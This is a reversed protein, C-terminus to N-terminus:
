VHLFFNRPRTYFFRRGELFQGIVPESQFFISPHRLRCLLVPSPQRCIHVGSDAIHGNILNRNRVNLVGQLEDDFSARQFDGSTHLRQFVKPHAIQIPTLKKM